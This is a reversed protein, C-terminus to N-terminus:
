PSCREAPSANSTTRPWVYSSPSPPTAAPRYTCTITLRRNVSIRYVYGCSPATALLTGHLVSRHAQLHFRQFVHAQLRRQNDAALRLRGNDDASITRVRPMCVSNDLPHLRRRARAQVHDRRHVRIGSHQPLPVHHHQSIHGVVGKDPPQIVLPPGDLVATIGTPAPVRQPRQVIWQAVPVVHHQQPGAVFGPQLTHHRTKRCKHGILLGAAQPPQHFDPETGFEVCEATRRLSPQLLPPLVEECPRGCLVGRFRARAELKNGLRARVPQHIVPGTVLRIRGGNPFDRFRMQLHALEPHHRVKVDPPQGRYPVQDLLAGHERVLVPQPDRLVQQPDHIGGLPRIGPEETLAHPVPHDPLVVLRQHRQRRPEAPPIERRVVAELLRLLPHGRGRVHELPLRHREFRDLIGVGILPHRQVVYQGIRQRAFIGRIDVVPVAPPRQVLGHKVAVVPAGKRRKSIGPSRHFSVRRIEQDLRPMYQLVAARREQQAFPEVSRRVIEPRLRRTLTVLGYAIWQQYPAKFLIEAVPQRRLDGHLHGPYLHKFDRAPEVIERFVRLRSRTFDLRQIQSPFLREVRDTEPLPEVPLVLVQHQM